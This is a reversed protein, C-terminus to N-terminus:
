IGIGALSLVIFVLTLVCVVVFLIKVVKAIPEPIVGNQILYNLLWWLLGVVIAIVILYVLWHVLSGAAFAQALILHM